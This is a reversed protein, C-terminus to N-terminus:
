FGSGLFGLSCFFSFVRSFLCSILLFFFFCGLFWFFLSFLGLSVGLRFVFFVFVGSTRLLGPQWNMM